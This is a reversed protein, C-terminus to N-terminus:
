ASPSACRLPWRGVERGDADYEIIEGPDEDQLRPNWSISRVEEGFADYEVILSNGTLDDWHVTHRTARSPPRWPGDRHERQIVDRM